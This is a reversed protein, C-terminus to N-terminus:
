STFFNELVPALAKPKVLHTQGEIVHHRADPLVGALAAVGNRMWQPSKGGGIVLTPMTVGSWHDAPLPKGRQFDVTVAADYPLTHAVKKLGSWAPMLRMFAVGIAPMGVAETMFTKVMDGRRDRALMDDIRGAYSDPVPARTGDVVFPAEYLALKSVGIGSNAAELALTAGSSIGYLFSTGGAEKVLAAIDEVERQVSFPATDSSEGRGRRDYIYVTFRSALQEALKGNPGFKRSGFAGDVLILPPGEGARDFAITTGDASVVKNM